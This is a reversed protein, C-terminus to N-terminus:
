PILDNLVISNTMSYSYGDTLLVSNSFNSYLGSGINNIAAIKFIYSYGINLSSVYLNRTESIDTEFIVVDELTKFWSTGSDSSYQIDYSRIPSGNDDPVYWTLLISNSDLVASVGTVQGPYSAIPTISNSPSSYDGIGSLGIAAISFTYDINNVLGDVTLALGTSSLHPFDTWKNGSDISYKISYDFIEDTNDMEWSLNIIKNGPTGSINKPISYSVFEDSPVLHFDSFGTARACITRTAFNPANTGSLVTIDTTRGSSDTHFVRTKNFTSLTVSSPVVFCLDINGSRSSTTSINYKALNNSISFNVPLKPDQQTVPTIRTIGSSTVQAYNLSIDVNYIPDRVGTIAVNTGVSSIPKISTNKVTGNGVLSAAAPTPVRNSQTAFGWYGANSSGGKYYAAKYWENETPIYYNANNNKNIIGTLAGNLTYAGTETSGYNNHLWNCYRALSFWSLFYAPKNGMNNKVSYTFSGSSGSRNIGGVRETSMQSSYLKYPDSQAVANLFVCYETNTLLYRNIQYTYSVAGYGTSDATNSTDGVTVYNNLNLPNNITAIRGGWDQDQPKGRNRNPTTLFSPPNTDGGAVTKLYRRTKDADYKNNFGGYGAIDGGRIVKFNAGTSNADCWEWVLGTQDFTDYYSSKGNTGVSTFNLGGNWFANSGIAASNYTIISDNTLLIKNNNQDLSLKNGFSFFSVM